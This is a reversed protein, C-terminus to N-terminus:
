PGRHLNWDIDRAVGSRITADLRLPDTGLFDILGDHMDRIEIRGTTVGVGTVILDSSDVNLESMSMHLVGAGAPSGVALPRLHGSASLGVLANTALTITGHPNGVLTIPIPARSRVSLDIAISSLDLTREDVWSSPTSPTSPGPLLSWRHIETMGYYPVHISLVLDHGIRDFVFWVDGSGGTPTTVHGDTITAGVPLSATFPDAPWPPLVLISANLFASGQLHDILSELSAQDIPRAGSGPAGTAMAAFDLHIHADDIRLEPIRGTGATTRVTVTGPTTARRIDIHVGPQEFTLHEIHAEHIEVTGDGYHVSEAGLEEVFITRDPRDLSAPASPDTMRARPHAADVTFGGRELVGVSIEGSHLEVAGHFRGAVDAELRPVTLEELRPRGRM